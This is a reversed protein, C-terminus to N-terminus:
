GALGLHALLAPLAAAEMGRWCDASPLVGPLLGLPGHWSEVGAVVLRRGLDPHDTFRFRVLAVVPWVTATVAVQFMLQAQDLSQSPEGYTEWVAPLKGGLGAAHATLVILFESEVFPSM